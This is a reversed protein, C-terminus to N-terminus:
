NAQLYLTRTASHGWITSVRWYIKHDPSLNWIATQETAKLPYFTNTGASYRLKKNFDPTASFEVSYNLTNTSTWRFVPLPLSRQSGDKVLYRANNLPTVPHFGSDGSGYLFRIGSRDDANLSPTLEEDFYPFMSAHFVSTHALGLVHGLEHLLVKRLDVGGGTGAVYKYKSNLLVDADVFSPPDQVYYSYSTISIVEPSYPWKKELWLVSNQNDTPDPAALFSRGGYELNYSKDPISQWSQIAGKLVNEITLIPLEGNGRSNLTMRIPRQQSDWRLFATPSIEPATRLEFGFASVHFSAVILLAYFFRKM